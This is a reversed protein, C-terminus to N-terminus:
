VFYHKITISGTAPTTPTGAVVWSVYDIVNVVSLRNLTVEFAGNYEPQDCGSVEIKTVQFYTFSGSYLESFAVRAENGVRYITPNLKTREILSIGCLVSFGGRYLAPPVSIPAWSAAWDWPSELQNYYHDPATIYGGSDSFPKSPLFRTIFSGGTDEYPAWSTLDTLYGDYIVLGSAAWADYLEELLKAAALSTAAKRTYMSPAFPGTSLDSVGLVFFSSPYFTDDYPIARFRVTPNPATLSWYPDGPGPLTTPNDVMAYYGDVLDGILYPYATPVTSVQVISDGYILFLLGGLGVAGQHGSFNYTTPFSGPRKRSNPGDLKAEICGNVLRTDKDPASLRTGLDPSLPIRVYPGM